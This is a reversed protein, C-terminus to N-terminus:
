PVPSQRPMPQQSDRHAHRWGEVWLERYWESNCPCTVIPARGVRAAQGESRIMAAVAGDGSIHPRQSRAAASMGKGQPRAMRAQADDYGVLWEHELTSGARFPPQRPRGSAHAAEGEERLLLAAGETLM